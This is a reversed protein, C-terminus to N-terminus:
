SDMMDPLAQSAIERVLGGIATPQKIWPHHTLALALQKEDHRTVAQAALREYKVFSDLVEQACTPAVAHNHRKLWSGNKYELPVEFVDSAHDPISLFYTTHVEYGGLDLILPGLAETYWQAPRRGLVATIAARDGHLYVDFAESAIQLLFHGRSRGIEQEKLVQSPEYHLRLYKLPIANCCRIVQTSPFGSASERLEAYEEVLNRRGSFVGHFWGIHNVGSYSYEVEETSLGLSACVHKLTVWPLECIGAIRLMPFSCCALRTMISVPSSLMLVFAEPCASLIESLLKKMSPWARWAASLGGPGLGEDGCLGYRLPFEEDFSRGKLGGVRIQIIVLESDKLANTLEKSDMHFANIKIRQEGILLNAARVVAALNRRSRGVLRFELRPLERQSALFAFLVPTSHASGGLLTVIM